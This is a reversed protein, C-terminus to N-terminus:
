IMNLISDLGNKHLTRVARNSIRVKIFRDLSPVYLSRKHLNLEFKRRTKINSHSVKHGLMRRRGTFICVKAM